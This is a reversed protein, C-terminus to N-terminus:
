LFIKIIICYIEAYFVKVLIEKGIMVVVKDDSISAMDFKRLQLKM